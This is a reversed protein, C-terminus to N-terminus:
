KESSASVCMRVARQGLVGHPQTMIAVADDGLCILTNHIILTSLQATYVCHVLIDEMHNSHLNERALSALKMHMM